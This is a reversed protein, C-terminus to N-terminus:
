CVTIYMIGTPDWNVESIHHGKVLFMWFHSLLEPPSVKDGVLGGTHKRTQGNVLSM